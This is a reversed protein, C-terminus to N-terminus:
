EASRKSTAEYIKFGVFGLVGLKWYKLLGFVGSAASGVFAILNGAAAVVGSIVGILDSWLSTEYFKGTAVLNAVATSKVFNEALALTRDLADIYGADPFTITEPTGSSRAAFIAPVYRSVAKAFETQYANRAEQFFATNKDGTVPIYADFNRKIAVQLRYIETHLRNIAPWPYTQKRAVKGVTARARVLAALVNKTGM